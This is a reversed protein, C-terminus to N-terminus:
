YLYIFLPIISYDFMCLFHPAQIAWHYRLPESSQYAAGHGPGHTRAVTAIFEKKSGFVDIKKWSETQNIQNSLIIQWDFKDHSNHFLFNFIFMKKFVHLQFIENMQVITKPADNVFLSWVKAM